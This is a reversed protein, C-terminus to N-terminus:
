NNDKLSFYDSPIYNNPYVGVKEHHTDGHKEMCPICFSDSHIHNWIEKPTDNCILCKKITMKKEGKKNKNKM